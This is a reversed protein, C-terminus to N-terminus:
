FPNVADLAARVTSRAASAVDEVADVPARVARVLASRYRYAYSAVIIASGAACLALGLPPIEATAVGATVLGPGATALGAATLGYGTMQAVAMVREDRTAARRAALFSSGALLLTGLLTIRAAWLGFVGMPLGGDAMGALASGADWTSGAASAADREWERPLASSLVMVGARGITRLGAAGQFRLEGGTEELHEAAHEAGTVVELV